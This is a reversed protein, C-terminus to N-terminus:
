GKPFLRFALYSLFCGYALIFCASLVPLVRALPSSKFRGVREAVGRAAVALVAIATLVIGLGLSYCAVLIMGYNAKHLAVASLLM